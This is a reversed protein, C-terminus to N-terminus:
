AWAQRYLTVLEDASPVRPNKQPTGSQLAQEAMTALLGDYRQRDIGWGSLTPVQLTKNLQELRELLKRIAHVTSDAEKACGLAVAVRQYREPASGISYATVLPLLMANGLGHAVHFFAGLPRSMGHVLATGGVGIALGAHLAALSMAERSARNGPEHYATELHRGIMQLASLAFADGHPHSQRSVFSEIAHTLADLGTDATVRPPCTMSLEYDVIAGFPMCASGVLLMKEQTEIDTIVAARTVESGTGATTPIAIIRFAPVDMVRPVKMARLPEDRAAVLAAAKATDIASGGGLGILGDHRGERLRRAVAMVSADTPDEVVESCVGVDDCAKGAAAIVPEALGLALLRPDVVILPRAIGAAALLAPLQASSSGGGVILQVPNLFVRAATMM